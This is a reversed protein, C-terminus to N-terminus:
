SHAAGHPETALSPIRRTTPGSISPWGPCVETVGRGPPQAGKPYAERAQRSTRHPATRAGVHGRVQM